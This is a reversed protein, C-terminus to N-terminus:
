NLISVKIPLSLLLFNYSLSNLSFANFSRSFPSIQFSKYFPYILLPQTFFHTCKKQPLGDNGKAVGTSVEAHLNESSILSVMEELTMENQSEIKKRNESM